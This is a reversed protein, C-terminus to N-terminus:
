KVARLHCRIDLAPFVWAAHREYWKSVAALWRAGGSNDLIFNGGFTLDLSVIDFRFPAGHFSEFNKGTLHDFSAAALHRVHTPDAYSNHSSFHPTTVFVSAGAQAVRHVEAMTAMVDHVHEIIHSLHIREFRNSELPWPYSDLDWVIDTEAGPSRDIGLAQPEAKRTGCGVDLVTSREQIASPRPNM